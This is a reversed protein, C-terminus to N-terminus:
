RQTKYLGRIQLHVHIINANHFHLLNKSATTWITFGVEVTVKTCWFFTKGPTDNGPSIWCHSQQKSPRKYTLWTM